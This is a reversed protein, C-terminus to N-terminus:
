DEFGELGSERAPRRTDDFEAIAKGNAIDVVVGDALCIGFAVDSLRYRNDNGLVRYSPDDVIRVPFWRNPATQGWYKSSRKIRAVLQQDDMAEPRKNPNTTTANSPHFQLAIEAQEEAHAACSM